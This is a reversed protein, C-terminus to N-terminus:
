ISFNMLLSEIILIKKNKKDYENKDYTIFFIMCSYIINLDPSYPPWDLVDIGVEKFTAKTEKSSQALTIDQQFIWNGFSWCKDADEVISSGM